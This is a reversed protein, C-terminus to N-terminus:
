WAAPSSSCSSRCARHHRGRHEDLPRHSGSHESLTGMADLPTTPRRSRRLEATSARSRTRGTASPRAARHRIARARRDLARVPARGAARAGVRRRAAPRRRRCRSRLRGRPRRVVPRRGPRRRGLHRRDHRSSRGAVIEDGVAVGSAARRRSGATSRRRGHRGSARSSGPPMRATRTRSPRCRRRSATSRQPHRSPSSAATSRDGASRAAVDRDGAAGRCGSRRRRDGLGPRSACRRAPRAPVTSSAHPSRCRAGPRVRRGPVGPFRGRADRCGRVRAASRDPLACSPRRIGTTGRHRWLHAVNM